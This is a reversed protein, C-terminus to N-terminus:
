DRYIIQSVAQIDQRPGFGMATVRYIYGPAARTLDRNAPDEIPEIVYRPKQYPQIGYNGSPFVRGTFQGLGATKSNSTTDTFDVTLWAPKGSVTLACLGATTGTGCGSVFANTNSMQAFTAGRIAPCGHTADVGANGPDLDCQADMLAAEAAQWAIQMDRDNRSSREGMSAIQAAGVGLISVIVLLVLVVILSVGTQSGSASRRKPRMLSSNARM